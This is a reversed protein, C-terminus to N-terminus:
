AKAIGYGVDHENLRCTESTAGESLQTALVERAVITGHEALAERVEAAASSWSVVIRDSVELGAQKRANQLVSILERAIGERELAPDLETDLVVTLDGNTAVVAGKLASRQLVVDGLDLAEGEVEVKGGSELRAVEAFSWRALEASIAKLKPGCRKGLTKFNPKVTLSTFASEDAEAALSKVNLEDAILAQSALAMERLQPDRHVVTLKRLPQRVRIRQEERLKRGLAVVNRAVQMRAELGLDIAQLHPKPYDCFHVSPPASPDVPRVLRQYVTETIFPMFPALVQAFSVL